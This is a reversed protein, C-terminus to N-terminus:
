NVVQYCYKKQISAASIAAKAAECSSASSAAAAASDITAKEYAGGLECGLLTNCTDSNVTTCGASMLPPTLLGCAEDYGIAETFAPAAAACNVKAISCTFTQQLAADCDAAARIRVACDEVDSRDVQGSPCGPLTDCNLWRVEMGTCRDRLALYLDRCGSINDVPNELPSGCSFTMVTLLLPFVRRMAGVIGRAVGSTLFPRSRGQSPGM